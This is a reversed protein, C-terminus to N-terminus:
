EQVHVIRQVYLEIVIYLKVTFLQRLYMYYMYSEGDNDTITIESTDGTIIVDPNSVGTIMLTFDEPNELISDDIITVNFCVMDDGAQIIVSNPVSAASYDLSCSFFISYM